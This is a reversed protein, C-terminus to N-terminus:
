GFTLVCKNVQWLKRFVDKKHQHKENVKEEINM